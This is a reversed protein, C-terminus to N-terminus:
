KRWNCGSTTVFMWKHDCVDVQPCLCGSTSVFMLKHVCLVDV